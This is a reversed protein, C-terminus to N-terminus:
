RSRDNKKLRFEKLTHDLLLLADAEDDGSIDRDPYLKKAAVIMADKDARGSGTASKKLTASHVAMHEIGRAACAELIRTTMGILLQTAYGGRQHSQEFVVVAPKVQGLIEGLWANFRIFRMGPSEGRRLDFEQVGSELRHGYQAAWGTKTGVDIALINM